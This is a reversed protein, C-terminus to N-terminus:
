AESRRLFAHYVILLIIATGTAAGLAWLSLSGLVTGNNVVLGAALSGLLGLGVQRMIEGSEETRAVISAMWGLLAGLVALVLLAM